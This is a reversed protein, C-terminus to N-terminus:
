CDNRKIFFDYYGFEFLYILFVDSIYNWNPKCLPLSYQSHFVILQSYAHSDREAIATTYKREKKMFKAFSCLLIQLLMQNSKACPNKARIPRIPALYEFNHPIIRVRFINSSTCIIRPHKKSCYAIFLCIRPSQLVHLISM